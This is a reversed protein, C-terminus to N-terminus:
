KKAKKVVKPKATLKTIAENLSKIDVAIEKKAATLDRIEKDINKDRELLGQLTRQLLKIPEIM